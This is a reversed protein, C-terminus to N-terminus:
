IMCMTTNNRCPKVLKLGYNKNWTDDNPQDMLMKEKYTYVM